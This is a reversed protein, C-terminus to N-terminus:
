PNFYDETSSTPGFWINMETRSTNVNEMYQERNSNVIVQDESLTNTIMLLPSSKQNWIKDDSFHEVPETNNTLPDYVLINFQGGSYKILSKWAQKAENTQHEDCLIKKYRNVARILLYRFAGQGQYEPVTETYTIQWMNHERFVVNLVAVLTDNNFLGSFYSDNSEHEAFMLNNFAKSKIDKDFINQYGAIFTISGARSPYTIIENVQM